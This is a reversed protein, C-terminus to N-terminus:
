DPPPPEACPVSLGLLGLSGFDLLGPLVPAPGALQGAVTLATMGASLSWGVSAMALARRAM